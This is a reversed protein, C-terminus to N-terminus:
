IDTLTAWLHHTAYTRWPRWAAARESVTRAKDGLGLRASAKKIGLDSPLFTDPDGLARMLIYGATWEGIGPVALLRQYTEARDAGPDLVLTGGAVAGALAHLTARRTQPVGLKSLDAAAIADPCPFLHTLTPDAIKILDGHATVLRSTLTRAAALSVQQGLIAQIALETGDVAGPARLGPRKKVIPSLRRDQSLVEVVSLPDADLDLLRRCQRVASTLDAMSELKLTCQIHGNVPELAVIAAGRALRLTRRYARGNAEAVGPVARTRLWGSLAPWDLPPRYPLRLTLAGEVVDGRRRGATRLATPTLAFVERVTDNFQRVSEFGAAFAVDTFPLDTTEILTRATQARQARAIALPGAGLEGLLLRDLHRESVALRRALGAVGVRDVTGDAILRMARGVLDGRVNLEPSGASADPRCRKCARFGALQAAAATPYFRVNERKPRVPTPCSPRCYIGTTKVATIFWGDFRADRSEVARYCREFDLQSAIVRDM